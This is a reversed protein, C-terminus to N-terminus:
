KKEALNNKEKTKRKPRNEIPEYCSGKITFVRTGDNHVKVLASEDNANFCFSFEKERFYNKYEAM